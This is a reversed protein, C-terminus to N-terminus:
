SNKLFKQLYKEIEEKEIGDVLMKRFEGNTYQLTVVGRKGLKFMYQENRTVKEVNYKGKIAQQFEAITM